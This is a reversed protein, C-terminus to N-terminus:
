QICENTNSVSQRQRTHFIDHEHKTMLELNNLNNNLKNGDKHHVVEDKNLKRNLFEEMILRHEYLYKDGVKICKYGASNITTGSIFALSNEGKMYKKSCDQSCFRLGSKGSRYSTFKIGCCSCSYTKSMISREKERRKSLLYCRESCYKFKSFNSNYRSKAVSYVSECEKCRATIHTIRRKCEDSCYIRHNKTSEYCQILNNCVKCKVEIMKSEMLM